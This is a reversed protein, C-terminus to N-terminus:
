PFIIPRPGLREFRQAWRRVTKPQRVVDFGLTEQTAESNVSDITALKSVRAFALVWLGSSSSVGPAGTAGDRPHDGTEGPM